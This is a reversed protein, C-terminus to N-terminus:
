SAFEDASDRYPVTVTEGAAGRACAARHCRRAAGPAPPADGGEGGWCPPVPATVGPVLEQEWNGDPAAGKVRLM